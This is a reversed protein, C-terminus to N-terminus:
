FVPRRESPSIPNTFDSQIGELLEIARSESVSSCSSVQESDIILKGDLRDLYGRKNSSGNARFGQSAGNQVKPLPYRDDFVNVKLAPLEAFSGKKITGSSYADEADASSVFRIEAYYYTSGEFWTPRNRRMEQFQEDSPLASLFRQEMYELWAEHGHEELYEQSERQASDRRRQYEEFSADKYTSIKFLYEPRFIGDCHVYSEQVLEQGLVITPFLLHLALVTRSLKMFHRM